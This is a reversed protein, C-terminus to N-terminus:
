LKRLLVAMVVNMEWLGSLLVLATREGQTCLTQTRDLTAPIFNRTTRSGNM